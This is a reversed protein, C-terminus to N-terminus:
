LFIVRRARAPFHPAKPALPSDKVSAAAALSSLGAFALYGFGSSVSRLLDRRSFANSNM